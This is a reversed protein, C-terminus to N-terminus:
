LRYRGQDQALTNHGKDHDGAQGKNDHCDKLSEGGKDTQAEYSLTNQKAKGGKLVENTKNNKQKNWGEKSANPTQIFVTVEQISQARTRQILRTLQLM